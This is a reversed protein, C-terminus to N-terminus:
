PGCRSPSSGYGTICSGSVERHRRALVKHLLKVGAHRESAMLVGSAHVDHESGTTAEKLGLKTLIPPHRYDFLASPHCLGLDEAASDGCAAGGADRTLDQTRWVATRGRRKRA